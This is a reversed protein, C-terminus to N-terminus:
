SSKCPHTNFANVEVKYNHSDDVVLTEQVLIEIDKAIDTWGHNNSDRSCQSVLVIAGCFHLHSNRHGFWWVSPSLLWLLVNWPM